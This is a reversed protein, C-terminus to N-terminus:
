LRDVGPWMLKVAVMPTRVGVVGLDKTRPFLENLSMPTSKASRSPVPRNSMKTLLMVTGSPSSSLLKTKTLLVDESLSIALSRARPRAGNSWSAWCYPRAQFPQPQSTFDPSKRFSPWCSTMWALPNTLPSVSRQFQSWSVAM